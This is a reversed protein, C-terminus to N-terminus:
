VCRSTYLLCTYLRAGYIDIIVASKHHFVQFASLGTFHLGYGAAFNSDSLVVSIVLVFRSKSEPKNEARVPIHEHIFMGRNKVGTGRDRICM